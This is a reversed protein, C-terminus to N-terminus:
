NPQSDLECFIHSRNYKLTSNLTILSLNSVHALSSKFYSDFIRFIALIVENDTTKLESWNQYSMYLFDSVLKNELMSLLSM